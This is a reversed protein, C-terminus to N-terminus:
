NAKQLKQEVAETSFKENLYQVIDSSEYMWEKDTQLTNRLCPVKIKGGGSLLDKRVKQNNKADVTKIKIGLRRAAWRVKVCFPCAKFEYLTLNETEKDLFRQVQASNKKIKPRFILDIFSVIFSLIYRVFSM